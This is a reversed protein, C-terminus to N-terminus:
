TRRRPSRAARRARPVGLRQYEHASLDPAIRVIADYVQSLLDQKGSFEGTVMAYAVLDALSWQSLGPAV